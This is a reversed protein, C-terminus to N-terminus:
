ENDQFLIKEYEDKQLIKSLVFYEEDKRVFKWFEVFSTSSSHGAKKELTDMNIVYDVMKGKVYFWIFDKTDDEEDHVFVPKIELLRINKLVNRERRMEMWALKTQFEEYLSDDMYARSPMMDMNTWSNQISYFAEIAQKEQKKYNWTKDKLSLMKLFKKSNRSSKFVRFSLRISTFFLSLFFLMYFLFNGLFSTRGNSSSYGGHSSTGHSGGTSSGGGTSGGGGARLFTVQTGLYPSSINQIKKSSFSSSLCFISIFFIGLIFFSIFLNKKM